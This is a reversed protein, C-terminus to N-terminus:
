CDDVNVDGKIPILGQMNYASSKKNITLGVTCFMCTILINNFNQSIIEPKATLKLFDYIAVTTSVSSLVILHASIKLQLTVVNGM